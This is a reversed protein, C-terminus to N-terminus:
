TQFQFGTKMKQGLDLNLCDLCRRCRTAPSCGACARRGCRRRARPAWTTARRSRPPRRLCATLPAPRQGSTAAAFPMHGERPVGLLDCANHVVEVTTRGSAGLTVKFDNVMVHLPLGSMCCFPVVGWQGSMTDHAIIATM